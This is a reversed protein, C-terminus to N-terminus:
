PFRRPKRRAVTVLCAIKPHRDAPTAPPAITSNDAVLGPRLSATYTRNAM